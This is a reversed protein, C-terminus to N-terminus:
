LSDAPNWWNGSIVLMCLLNISDDYYTSKRYKIYNWGANLYDQHSKDVICSTVFPAIFAVSPYNEKVRGELTYTSATFKPKNGTNVKIWGAVKNMANKAEITNYHAYDM